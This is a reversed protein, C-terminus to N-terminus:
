KLGRSLGEFRTFYQELTWQLVEHSEGLAKVRVNHYLIAKVLQFDTALDHAAWQIAHVAPDLETGRWQFDRGVGSMAPVLRKQALVEPRYLMSSTYFNFGLIDLSEPDSQLIEVIMQTGSTPSGIAGSRVNPISMLPIKGLHTRSPARKMVILRPSEATAFALREGRLSQTLNEASRQSLTTLYAVDCRASGSAAGSQALAPTMRIVCDYDDLPPEGAASIPAAGILAVRKSRVLNGLHSRQPDLRPRTEPPNDCGLARLAQPVGDPVSTHHVELERVLQQAAELRGEDVFLHFARRVTNASRHGAMFETRSAEMAHQRALRASAFLRM